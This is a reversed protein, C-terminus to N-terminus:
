IALKIELSSVQTAAEVPRKEVSGCAPAPVTDNASDSHAPQFQRTAHQRLETVHVVDEERDEESDTDDNRLLMPPPVITLPSRNVRVGNNPNEEESDDDLYSNATQKECRAESISLSYATLFTSQGTVDPTTCPQLNGKTEAM